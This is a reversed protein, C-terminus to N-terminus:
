SLEWLDCLITLLQEQRAALDAPTWTQHTLVGTTLAFVAVGGSGTFYKQKKTDFEYNQAASNKRRNLLLLNALRHTWYSRVQPDPFWTLWTSGSKPHQPLVHEVSIIKHEYIVGPADALTEDLRLLLYKRRPARMLYIPGDLAARAEQKDDDQLHFGPVQLADGTSGTAVLQDLLDLYRRLRPTSYEGRLMSVVALREVERLFEALFAPADPHTRLAWLALFRWDKNDIESLRRLWTNVARWQPHTDDFDQTLLHHYATAYPVLLQDVFAVAGDAGPYASLVQEPFEVLLERQARKRSVLTRLDLFLEAFDSRGLNQEATEWVTAYAQQQGVPIAGIVTSKFIDSPTLDLGRANMVSFIRHASAMDPTTVVVLFTQNRLYSVLATREAESREALTARLVAANDRLARQSDTALAQDTLGILAEVAGPTQVYQTFFPADQARLALRPKAAIGDLPEGPELVMASLAAQTSAEAALDRLVAIILSLTTLRQQGDIVDAVPADEDPKVLVLSGLFYPEAGDRETADVLDSLLQEAQETGWAYPRQYHPITLDFDSSFIKKVAFEHAKLTM